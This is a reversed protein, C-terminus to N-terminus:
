GHSPDTAKAGQGDPRLGDHLSSFLFGRVGRHEDRGGTGDRRQAVPNRGM